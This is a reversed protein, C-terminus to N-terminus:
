QPPRDTQGVRHMHRESQQRLASEESGRCVPEPPVGLRLHYGGRYRVHTATRLVICSRLMSSNCSSRIVYPFQNFDQSFSASSVQLTSLADEPVREARSVRGQPLFLTLWLHVQHIFFSFVYSTRGSFVVLSTCRSPRRVPAPIRRPWRIAGILSAPPHSIRGKGFRTANLWFKAWTLIKSIQAALFLGHPIFGHLKVLFLGM